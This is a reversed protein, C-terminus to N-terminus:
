SATEKKIPAVVRSPRPAPSHTRRRRLPGIRLLLEAEHGGDPFTDAPFMTSVRCAANHDGAFSGFLRLSAANSPAVTAELHTADRNAPLDILADLLARGIGRRREVPDVAIQWVFVADHGTPPRYASAFAVVESGNMAVLSTAAFHSCVLLYAYPSNEDISGCTRSLRWVGSADAVCPPRLRLHETGETRHPDSTM